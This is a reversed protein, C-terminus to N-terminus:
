KLQDYRNGIRRVAALVQAARRSDRLSRCQGRLQIGGSRRSPDLGPMVHQIRPNLKAFIKGTAAPHTDVPVPCIWGVTSEADLRRVLGRINLTRWPLRQRSTFIRNMNLAGPFPM